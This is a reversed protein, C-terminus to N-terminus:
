GFHKYRKFLNVFSNKHLRKAFNPYNDLFNDLLKCILKEATMKYFNPYNDLFNDLGFRSKVFSNKRCGNQLIQIIIWFFKGFGFELFNANKSLKVFSSKKCGNAVVTKIRYKEQVDLMGLRRAFAVVRSPRQHKPQHRVNGAIHQGIEAFSRGSRCYQRIHRRQWVVITQM